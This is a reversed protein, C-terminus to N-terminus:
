IATGSYQLKISPEQRTKVLQNPKGGSTVTDEPINFTGNLKHVDDFSVDLPQAVNDEVSNEQENM